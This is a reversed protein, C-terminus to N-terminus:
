NKSKEPPASFSNAPKPFSNKPLQFIDRNKRWFQHLQKKHHCLHEPCNACALKKNTAEFYREPHRRFRIEWGALLGLALTLLSWTFWHPVLLFPTFMMAYDWNYIRCNACCKNKMFWTQFPCFFLICIMDCVSYFLAILILVGADYLGLFYGLAILGNLGIWVWFVAATSKGTDPIPRPEDQPEHNIHFQKQCGMSEYRSPFFRCIMEYAFVIWIVMLIVPMHEWDGFPRDAQQFHNIIYVVLAALFLASRYVLRVYHLRSIRSLHKRKPNPM